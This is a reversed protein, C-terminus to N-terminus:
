SAKRRAASPAAGHKEPFRLEDISVWKGGTRDKMRKTALSLKEAVEYVCKEGDRAKRLVTKYSVRSERELDTYVGAGYMKAWETLLM